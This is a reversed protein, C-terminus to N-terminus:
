AVKATPRAQPQLALVVLHQPSRCMVPAPREEQGQRYRHVVTELLSRVRPCMEPTVQGNTFFFTQGVQFTYGMPCTGEAQVVQVAVTARAPAPPAEPTPLPQPARRGLWLALAVGGVALPALCLACALLLALAYGGFLALLAVLALAGGGLPVLLSRPSGRQYM